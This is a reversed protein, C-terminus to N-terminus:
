QRCSSKFGTLSSICVILSGQKALFAVMVNKKKVQYYFPCQRKVASVLDYTTTRKELVSTDEPKSVAKNLDLDYPEM